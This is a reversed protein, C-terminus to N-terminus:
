SARFRDDVADDDVNEAIGAEWWAGRIAPRSDSGDLLRALALEVAEREGPGPEPVVILEM